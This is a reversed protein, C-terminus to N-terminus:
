LSSDLTAAVRLVTELELMGPVARAHTSKPPSPTPDRSARHGRPADFLRLVTVEDDEASFLFLFIRSRGEGHLEVETKMWREEAGGAAEAKLM